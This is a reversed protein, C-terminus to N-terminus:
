SAPTHKKLWALQKGIPLGRMPVCVDVGRGRLEPELFERYREGALIVVSGVGELHPELEDLVRDAWERRKDKPCPSNLTENYPRIVKEPRVLGYKASLIFWPRGTSEVYARAKQFWDSTNLCRAPAETERKKSVCSVLFLADASNEALDTEPRESM